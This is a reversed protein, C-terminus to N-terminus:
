KKLVFGGRWANNILGDGTYGNLYAAYAQLAFSLAETIEGRSSINQYGMNYRLDNLIIGGFLEKQVLIALSVLSGSLDRDIIKIQFSNRSISSICTMPCSDSGPYIIKIRKLHDIPYTGLQMQNLFRTFLTDFDLDYKGAWTENFYTRFDKGNRVGMFKNLEDPTVDPVHTFAWKVAEKVKETQQPSPFEMPIRNVYKDIAEKDYEFKGTKLNLYSYSKGDPAVAKLTQTKEDFRYSETGRFGQVLVIGKGDATLIVAYPPYGARTDAFSLFHIGQKKLESLFSTLTARDSPSADARIFRNLSAFNKKSDWRLAGSKWDIQALVNQPNQPDILVVDDGKAQWKFDALSPLQTARREAETLTPTPTFTPTATPTLTPTATPLLTATPAVTPTAMVLAVRGEDKTTRGTDYVPACAALLLVLSV